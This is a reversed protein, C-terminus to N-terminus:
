SRQGTRTPLQSIIVATFVLACGVLERGSMREGLLWWGFLAAFVSELSMLLSAGTPELEKQGLMQMTYGVAGSVVSAYLITDRAAWIGSWEPTEFLFMLPCSLLGAFLFEVCTMTVSDGGRELFFDIFLIQFAFMVADLILMWDGREIVFGDKVCLFYSGVIAIGVAVIKLWTTRRHFAVGIIPVLVIYLATLFGSKGASTMSIGYQQFTAAAGMCLGCVMGGILSVRFTGKRQEISRNQRSGGIRLSLFAAPILVIGGLLIRVSNFTLVGVYQMAKSQAIYALGWIVTAIWLLIIGFLPKKARKEM